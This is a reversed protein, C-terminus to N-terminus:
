SCQESLVTGEKFCWSIDASSRCNVLLKSANGGAIDYNISAGTVTNSNGSILGDTNVIENLVRDILLPQKNTSTSAM